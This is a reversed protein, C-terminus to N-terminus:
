YNPFDFTTAGDMFFHSVSSPAEDGPSLIPLVPDDRLLIADHTLEDNKLAEIDNMNLTLLDKGLDRLDLPLEPETQEWEPHLDLDIDLVEPQQLPHPSQVDDVQRNSVVILERSLYKRHKALDVKERYYPGFAEDRPIGPYLFCLPNEPVNEEALLQYNRIIETIPVLQLIDKTYPEVSRLVVKDDDQHEVWSCTIGGEASTESFRLLFTGPLKKKLLRLAQARTVFGKILGDKWIDKLHSHVLDLIKDLWTWFPMKGPPSDQKSFAAWSLLLQSEKKHEQESPCFSVPAFLKKKLMNLQEQDLSRGTCSSFQWSLALGLVTWPAKPPSSFFQQDQPDSSLLNFWLISAWASSLQNMNSIIVVPLSNTKLELNLGQYSYKVTFNIIHLEETVILLGESCGKGSSSTKQEKLTLCRFDWILGQSRGKEPTLTKQESTLINFMRFGKMQPSNKDITVHVTLPENADQLRVLLRTQVSFKNGTKLVLPRKVPLLMQPQSEVIFARHLLLQLLETVGQLPLKTKLPDNEYSVFHTLDELEKLQQKLQFLIKAGATFWTELQDLHLDLPAGICAKRQQDKWKELEQLLLEILTACRGHLARSTDLVEKRKRDLENLTEQLLQQQKAQNSDMSSTKVPPTQTKYRFSFVDQLDSLQYVDKVLKQIMDKLEQIRSEIEQQQRTEKSVKPSTDVHDQQTRQAQNLINREELLLNYILGALQMPNDQFLAQIDRCFKRLNHQLLLDSDQSYGNSQSGLQDLLHHFLLYAHSTDPSMVAQYWNQDEIWSALHKRVDMPLLSNSYLEHLREQFPRDLGQLIEWKAM